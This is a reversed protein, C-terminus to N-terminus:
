IPELKPSFYIDDPYVILGDNCDIDIGAAKYARWILESCHLRSDDVKHPVTTLHATYDFPKGEQALAYDVAKQIVGEEAYNGVLRRAAIKAPKDRSFFVRVPTIVIGSNFTAEAVSATGYPQQGVYIAIHDWFGGHCWGEYIDVFLIDGPQLDEWGTIDADLTKWQVGLVSFVIIVLLAIVLGRKFIVKEV